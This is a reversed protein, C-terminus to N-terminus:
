NKLLNWYKAKFRDKLIWRAIHKDFGLHAEMYEFTRDLHQAYNYIKVYFPTSGIVIEVRPIGCYDKGLSELSGQAKNLVLIDYISVFQASSVPVKTDGIQASKGETIKYPINIQNLILKIDSFATLRDQSM